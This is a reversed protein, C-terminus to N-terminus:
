CKHWGPLCAPLLLQTQRWQQPMKKFRRRWKVLKMFDFSIFIGCVAAHRCAASFCFYFLCFFPYSIAQFPNIAARSRFKQRFVSWPCKKARRKVSKICNSASLRMTEAFSWLEVFTIIIIMIHTHIQTHRQTHTHLVFSTDPHLMQFAFSLAMSSGVTLRLLLETPLHQSPTSICALPPPCQIAPSLDLWPPSM